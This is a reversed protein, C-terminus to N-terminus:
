TVGSGCVRPCWAKLSEGYLEWFCRQVGGVVQCGFKGGLDKLHVFISFVKTFVQHLSLLIFDMALPKRQTLGPHSCRDDCQTLLARHFGVKTTM